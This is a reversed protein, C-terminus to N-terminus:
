APGDGTAIPGVKDITELSELPLHANAPCNPLLVLHWYELIPGSASVKTSSVRISSGRGRG